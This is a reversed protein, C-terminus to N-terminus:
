KPIIDKRWWNCALCDYYIVKVPEGTILMGDYPSVRVNQSGCRECIVPVPAPEPSGGGCGGNVSDLEDDSLEGAAHIREYYEKAQEESIKLGDEEVLAMLEEPSGAERAKEILGKSQSAFKEDM